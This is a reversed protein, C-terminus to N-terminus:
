RRHLKNKKALPCLIRMITSHSYPVSSWDSASKHGYGMKHTWEHALNSAVLCEDYKDHFKSNTYIIPSNKNTYGVVKSLSKKYMTVILKMEGYLTLHDYVSLGNRSIVEKKYEQSNLITELINSAKKLKEKQEQNYNTDSISVKFDLVSDSVAIPDIVVNDQKKVEVNHSCSLIIVLFLLKM